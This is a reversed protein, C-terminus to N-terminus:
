GILDISHFIAGEPTVDLETEKVLTKPVLNATGCSESQGGEDSVTAEGSDEGSQGEDGSQQDGSQSDQGDESSQAEGDPHECQIETSENVMGSVTGGAFLKITLTGGEFTEVEGANEQGDPIGNHNSDESRPNDGVEVEQGDTLGDGDTDAKRPNTGNEFEEL